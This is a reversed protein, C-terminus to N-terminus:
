IDRGEVEIRLREETKRLSDQRPSIALSKKYADLARRKDGTKEALAGLAAFADFRKPELAAATELDSMAGVDDGQESRVRARRVFGEAWKPSLTVVYDLLAQALPQSGSAEAALARAALLDVTDSDSRSWRRLLMAAASQADEEDDAQELRSLLRSIEEAKREAPDKPPAPAASKSDGAGPRQSRPDSLGNGPGFARTGPPLPIKGIGPIVLFNGGEEDTEISPRREEQALGLATGACLGLFVFCFGYALKRMACLMACRARCPWQARAKRSGNWRLEECVM